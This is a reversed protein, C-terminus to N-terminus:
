LYRKRENERSRPGFRRDIKIEDNKNEVEKKDKV